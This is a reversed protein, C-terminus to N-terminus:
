NEIGDLQVQNLMKYISGSDLEPHRGEIYYEWKLNGM